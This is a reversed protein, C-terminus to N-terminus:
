TSGEGAVAGADNISNAYNFPGALAPLVQEADDYRYAMGVVNEGVVVNKKNISNARAHALLFEPQGGKFRIM